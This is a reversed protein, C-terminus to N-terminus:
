LKENGWLHDAIVSSATGGDAVIFDFIYVKQQYLKKLSNPTVHCLHIFSVNIAVFYWHQISVMKYEIKIYIKGNM